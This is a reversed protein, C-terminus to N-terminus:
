WWVIERSGVISSPEGIWDNLVEAGISFCEVVFVVWHLADGSGRNKAPEEDETAKGNEVLCLALRHPLLSVLPQVVRRRSVRLDLAGEAMKVLVELADGELGHVAATARHIIVIVVDVVQVLEAVIYKRQRRRKGPRARTWVPFIDSAVAGSFNENRTLIM